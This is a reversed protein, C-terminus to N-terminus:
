PDHRRPHSAALQRLARLEQFRATVDRLLAIIGEMRGNADRVPVITFEVSIRSGDQRIAPVSLLDGAGYRSQGTRMTDRYGQWHRGRLNEPIIIDLSQGVASAAEFGFVRTAASNWFEIIGDANAYIVADAADELLTRALRDQDIPM